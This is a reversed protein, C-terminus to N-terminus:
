SQHQRGEVRGNSWCYVMASLIETKWKLLTERLSLIERSQSRGLEDLLRNFLTRKGARHRKWNLLKLMNQKARHVKSITPHALLWSNLRERFSNHMTAYKRFLLREAAKHKNRLSTPIQALLSKIRDDFLRIVHFRDAVIPAEPFACKISNWFSESLDVTVFRVNERGPLSCLFSEIEAETRGPAVEYIRRHNHDVILTNWIVCKSKSDRKFSHEDIGIAKPLPSSNQKILSDLRTYVVKYLTSNSCGYEKRVQALSSAHMADKALDRKYRETLRGGKRVGALPETFVAGCRKCKLRRKRVRFLIKGHRIPTDRISVIRHDYVTDTATACKPCVEFESDAELEFVFSFGKKQGINRLFTEPLTRYEIYKLLNM